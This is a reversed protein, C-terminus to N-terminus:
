SCNDYIILNRIHWAYGLNDQIYNCLQEDTLCSHELITDKMDHFILGDYDFKNYHNLTFEAVVHCNLLYKFGSKDPRFIHHNCYRKDFGVEKGATCYIYVKCPLECKPITKRIEITKEGNLIKEVWQPQISIMISRM